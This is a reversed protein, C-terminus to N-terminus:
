AGLMFPHLGQHSLAQVMLCQGHDNLVALFHRVHAVKSASAQAATLEFKVSWRVSTASAQARLKM